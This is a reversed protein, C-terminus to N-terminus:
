QLTGKFGIPGEGNYTNTGNLTKENDSSNVNLQIVYQGNRSGILWYGGPHWPASSGGWQNEVTYNNFVTRTARFGIPGEGQYTMTGNLTNGNDTSSIDIAVVNQNDRGGLKWTGGPHWPASSGGWQNEVIYSPKLDGKFGIPGEGSYTMTGNLSEGDDTSTVNLQVVRQTERGGIVWQGGPHWPASPGGWQNEVDYNNGGTLTARFGIPGEGAYTMTGNLTNGGDSSSIDIAVVNQNSRAGLIWIGGFHWPASSGGWQNEVQYAAM